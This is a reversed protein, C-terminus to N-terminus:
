IIDNSIFTILKLTQPVEVVKFVLKNIGGLRTTNKAELLTYYIKTRNKM